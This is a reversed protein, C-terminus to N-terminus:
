RNTSVIIGGGGIEVDNGRNALFVAAIGTGILIPILFPLFGGAVPFPANPNPRLCPRCGTQSLSGAVAENGAAVQRDQGEARLTATGVESNVMTRGCESEVSFTNAQSTDGIVIGEKTTVTTTVGQMNMVRVKGVLITAYIGNNDFKLVLSSQSLLEVRGLKGLDVTAISNASEGTTITSGSVLTSNSIAPRDNVTVNGTVSISATAEQQADAAMAIMSSVSSVAVLLVSAFMKRIFNRNLM